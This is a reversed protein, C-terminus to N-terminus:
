PQRRLTAWLKIERVALADLSSTGTNWAFSRQYVSGNTLMQEESSPVGNAQCEGPPYFFPLCNSSSNRYIQRREFPASWWNLSTHNSPAGVSLKNKRLDFGSYYYELTVGDQYIVEVKLEYNYGVMTKKNSPWVLQWEHHCTIIIMNSFTDTWM